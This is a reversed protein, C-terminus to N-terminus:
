DDSVAASVGRHRSFMEQVWRYGPRDGLSRRFQEWEEPWAPPWEYAFEPPAVLPCLLAAATLDAVSFRDGVLYERGGLEEEILDLARVTAERGLRAGEDDANMAKRVARRIAPYGANFFIRVGPGLGQSTLRVTIRRYPLIAHFIATRVGPGLKEDFHEELELAAKREIETDPYLPPDPQRQELEAVIQTTDGIVERDLELLPTTGTGGLRRSRGVHRGPALSRRRHRVKKYDLTWRAKENFHSFRLQWLVPLDGQPPTM